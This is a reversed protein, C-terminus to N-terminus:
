GGEKRHLDPGVAAIAEDASLGGDYMMIAIREERITLREAKVKDTVGSISSVTGNANDDANLLLISAFLREPEAIKMFESNM